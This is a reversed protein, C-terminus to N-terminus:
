EPRRHSVYEGAPRRFGVSLRNWGNIAIIALTLAVQEAADFESAMWDYDDAPAGTQPLLTLAETWALAARERSSFDPAERWVAVMNLRQQDEGIALADKTHMDVCFACGNLQSARLKVLERLKPELTSHHVVTELASMARTAEPLAENYDLRPEEVAHATHRQILETTM